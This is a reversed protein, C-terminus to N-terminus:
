LTFNVLLVKKAHKSFSALSCMIYTRHLLLQYQIIMGTVLGFGGRGLVRMVFFDEQVTPRDRYWLFNLTKNWETVEPQSYATWYKSKIIELVINAVQDFLHSSINNKWLILPNSNDVQDNNADISSVATTESLNSIDANGHDSSNLIKNTTEQVRLDSANTADRISSVTKLIEDRAPHDIGLPCKTCINEANCDLLQSSADMTRAESLDCWKLDFESIELQPILLPEKTSPDLVSPM